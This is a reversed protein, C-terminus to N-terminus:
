GRNFLMTLGVLTNEHFQIEVLQRQEKVTISMNARLGDGSVKVRMGQPTFAGALKGNFEYTTESWTGALADAEEWVEAKVEVKGSATACRVAQLLKGSEADWRYTARCKVQERKGDKFFLQGTGIWWGLLPAFKDPPTEAAEVPSGAVLPAIAAFVLVPAFLRAIPGFPRKAVQM